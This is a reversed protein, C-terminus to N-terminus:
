VDGSRLKDLFPGYGLDGMWFRLMNEVGKSTLSAGSLGDVKHEANPDSAEVSGKIVSIAVDGNDAYIEKGPWLAKWRPNDVEGGLGATEGHEYYGLGAVTNADSKIAVFGYLISWLGYGKIPLIVTDIDGNDDLVLYVKAYNERRSIKAVDESKSLDRSLSPDKAASQQDFSDVDISDTFEGTELDVIRPQIKSFMEDVNVGQQLLGAASLINRKIDLEKNRQQAPKLQVAALSVVVSCVICLLFAVLFTKGVTDRTKSDSPSDSNSDPNAM